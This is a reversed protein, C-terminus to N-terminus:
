SREAGLAFLAEEAAEWGAGVLEGELRRGSAPDVSIRVTAWPPEVKGVVMSPWEVCTVGAGDLVEDLDLSELGFPEVIRYLDVHTFPRDGIYHLILNYTPSTVPQRVGCGSGVGQALTTKGSGLPGELLIVAGEPATRGLAHGIAATQALDRSRVSWRVCVPGEAASM